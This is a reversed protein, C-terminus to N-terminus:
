EIQFHRHKQVLERDRFIWILASGTLFGGIHAAFAVGGGGSAFGASFIQIVFWYGLMLWAPVQIMRVFIGLVLFTDIKVQPYLVVYAGMVGGIAGSAGVMPLHSDPSLFMQALAAGVGCLIYFIFFRVHGMSDEINNGFIWLFWMNGILHMWGGHMFMSTLMQLWSKNVFAQCPFPNTQGVFIEYSNPIYPETGQTGFLRAPVLGWECISSTLGPDVGFKQFFFWVAACLGVIMYTVIPPRFHPNHDRIPFM